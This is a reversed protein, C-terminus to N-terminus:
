LMLAEARGADGLFDAMYLVGDMGGAAMMTPTIDVRALREAERAEFCPIVLAPRFTRMDFVRMAGDFSSTAFRHHAYSPQLGTIPFGGGHFAAQM